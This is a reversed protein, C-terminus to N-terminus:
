PLCFLILHRLPNSARLGYQELKFSSFVQTSLHKPKKQRNAYLVYISFTDFHIVLLEIMIM